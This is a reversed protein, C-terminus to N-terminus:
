GKNKKKDKTKDEELKYKIPLNFQVRVPEGDQKGPIWTPMTKVVRVAEEGCGGGIDRVLEVNTIGGNKEVIFSVVVMGQIGKKMADEPYKINQYIFELMKIQGCQQIEAISKGKSDCGPFLPMEEVEKFIGPDSTDALVQNENAEQIKGNASTTDPFFWLLSALPLVLLYRLGVAKRSPVKTMMAIRNKLSSHFSHTLAFAPAALTQRLLLQGYQRRSAERLVEADAIYEHVEALAKRYLYPLPNWWFVVALLESLLIDLSHWGRIHAQEHRLVWDQEEATWPGDKEPLFLTRFFSYPAQVRSSRVIRFNNELNIQGSRSINRLRILHIFLRLSLLVAGGAWLAALWHFGGHSSAGAAPTELAPLWVQFTASTQGPMEWEPLLPLVLGLALTGLLFFRNLHFFTQRRLGLYYLAFFLAWCLSTELLYAIM